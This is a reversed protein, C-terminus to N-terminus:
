CYETVKLVITNWNQLERIAEQNEKQVKDNILFWKKIKRKKLNSERVREVAKEVWRGEKEQNNLREEREGTEGRERSRGKDWGNVIECKSIAFFNKIKMFYELTTEGNKTKYDNTIYQHAM